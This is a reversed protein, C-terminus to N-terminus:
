RLERDLGEGCEEGEWGLLFENEECSEGGKLGEEWVWLGEMVGVEVEREWVGIGEVIDFGSEDDDGIGWGVEELGRRLKGLGGGNNMNIGESRVLGEWEVKKM